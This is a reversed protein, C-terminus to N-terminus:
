AGLELQISEPLFMTLQAPNVEIEKGLRGEINRIALDCYNKSIDIGTAQLGFHRAVKLTTGMGMFPDLISIDGPIGSLINEVLEPPFPAPHPTNLLPPIAWVESQHAATFRSNRKFNPQKTEKTLWFVLETTPLFRVPATNPSFTQDWVIQQKFVLKSKLIWEMPHSAQNDKVRIRHNYFVSGNAKLLRHCENLIEIQWERYESEPMDDEFTDYDINRGRWESTATSFSKKGVFGKKNYPPSFIILDFSSSELHPLISLCDGHYITIQNNQYYPGIKGMKDVM